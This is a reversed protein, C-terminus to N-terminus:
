HQDSTAGRAPSTGDFARVPCKVMCHVAKHQQIGVETYMFLPEVLSSVYREDLMARKVVRAFRNIQRLPGRCQPCVKVKEESLPDSDSKFAIPTGEPSMEYHKAMDMTGDMSSRLILHGCPPVIVPDADLDADKYSEGMIYDVTASKINDSACIQCYKVEPCIEGCLSPCQHGCGLAKDCRRSCPLVNCPVACPMKCTGHHLCGVNCQEACPACPEHCKKSCRSHDCAIQCPQDCLPCPKGGHCKSRCSHGCTSYERGCRSTCTGHEIVSRNEDKRCIYCRKQCRHGCPLDAGCSATCKYKPDLVNLHCQITM